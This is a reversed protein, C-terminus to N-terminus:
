ENESIKSSPSTEIGSFKESRAPDTEQFSFGFSGTLFKLM